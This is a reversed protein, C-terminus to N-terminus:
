HRRSSSRAWRREAPSVAPVDLPALEAGIKGPTQREFILGENRTMHPRAHQIHNSM